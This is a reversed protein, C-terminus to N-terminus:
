RAAPELQRLLGLSEDRAGHQLADVVGPDFQRGAAALVRGYATAAALPGRYPRSATMAEMADCVAFLSADRARRAAELATGTETVADVEELGGVVDRLARRRRADADAIVVATFHVGRGM